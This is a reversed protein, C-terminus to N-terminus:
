VGFNHGDVNRSQTGCVYLHEKQIIHLLKIVASHSVTKIMEIESTILTNKRRKTLIKDAEMAQRLLHNNLKVEWFAGQGLTKLIKYQESFAEEDVINFRLVRCLSDYDLTEPDEIDM